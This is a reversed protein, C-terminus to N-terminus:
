SQMPGEGDRLIAVTFAGEIANLADDRERPSLTGRRASVPADPDRTWEGRMTGEYRMAVRQGAPTATTELIEWWRGAPDKVFWGAPVTAWTRPLIFGTPKNTTEEFEVVEVEAHWRFRMVPEGDLEVIATDDDYFRLRVSAGHLIGEEENSPWGSGTLWEQATGELADRVERLIQVRDENTTPKV